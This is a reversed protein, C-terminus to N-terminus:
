QQNKSPTIQVTFNGGSDAQGVGIPARNSDKVTVTSGAEAHGSVAVMEQLQSAQRRM